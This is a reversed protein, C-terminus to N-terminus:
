TRAAGSRLVEGSRADRIETPGAQNGTDGPVLYDLGRSRLSKRVALASKAPRQGTLNASTSVVPAGFARCLAAAVPHASVRVALLMRGGTLWSRALPGAPLLWTVAGPWTPAIRQEMVPDPCVYGSLQARDGAILILGKGVPRDKIRLVRLVAAANQPDCGLGFVGETPYAVVGGAALIRAATKIHWWSM